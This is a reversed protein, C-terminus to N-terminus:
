STIKVQGSWKFAQLYENYRARMVSGVVVLKYRGEVLAVLM